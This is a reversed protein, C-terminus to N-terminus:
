AATRAEPARVRLNDILRAKGIRAAVLVVLARAGVTAPSLDAACRVTFYDVSFGATMLREQAAAEIAAFEVSEGAAISTAALKLEEHLRPALARQGADLYQNRSSMALGDPERLTAAGIVQVPLCLDAVMRRIVTLQQFDKEGFVAVDPQEINFLKAVVTAVGEFHGPRFEGCLMDSLIPVEVRTAAQPGVPYMEGVEPQFMLDCGAAQLMQADRVPTRPYHNFDENPGFQMPNVFISSVFRDGHERALEILSIHGPHLNGM